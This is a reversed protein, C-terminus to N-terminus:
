NGASVFLLIFCIVVYLLFCVALIFPYIKRIFLDQKTADMYKPEKIFEDLHHMYYYDSRPFLDTYNLYYEFLMAYLFSLLSVINYTILAIVSCVVCFYIKVFVGNSLIEVQEDAQFVSWDSCSTYKRKLCFNVTYNKRIAIEKAKHYHGLEHLPELLIYILVTFIPIGILQCRSFPTINICFLVCFFLYSLFNLLCLIGSVFLFKRKTEAKVNMM